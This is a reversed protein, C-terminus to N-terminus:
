DFFLESVRDERDEGIAETAAHRRDDEARRIGSLVEQMGLGAEDLIDDTRVEHGYDVAFRGPDRSARMFNM